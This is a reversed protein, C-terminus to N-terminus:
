PSILLTTQGESRRGSADEATVSLTLTSTTLTVESKKGKIKLQDGDNIPFGSIGTLVPAPDCVDTASFDVSVWKVNAREIRTIETGSRADVFALQLDPATTDAINVSVTDTGIQGDTSKASVAVSHTGVGLFTNLTAGAGAEINDV